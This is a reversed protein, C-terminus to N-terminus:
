RLVNPLLELWLPLCPVLLPSNSSGVKWHWEVTPVWLSIQLIFNFLRTLYVNQFARNDNPSCDRVVIELSLSGRPYTTVEMLSLMDLQGSLLVVM